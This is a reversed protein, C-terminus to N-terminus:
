KRRNLRRMAQAIVSAVQQQRAATERERMTKYKTSVKYGRSPKPGQPDVLGQTEELFAFLEDPSLCKVRELEHDELQQEITTRLGSLRDPHPTVAVVQTFGADLCKRVNGLEHVFGTTVCLECAISVGDKELALDAARTGLVQGEITVKYGLTQAREKILRQLGQHEPGGRGPLREIPPLASPPPVIVTAADTSASTANLEVVV